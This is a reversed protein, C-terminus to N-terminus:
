WTIFGDPDQTEARLHEYDYQPCMTDSPPLMEYFVYGDPVTLKAADVHVCRDECTQDRFTVYVGELITFDPDVAQVRRFNDLCRNITSQIPVGPQLYRDNMYLNVGNICDRLEAPDVGDNGARTMYDYFGRDLTGSAPDYWSMNHYLRQDYGDEVADPVGVNCYITAYVPLDPAHEKLARCVNVAIQRDLFSGDPDANSYHDSFFDDISWGTLRDPYKSALVGIVCGWVAEHTPKALCNATTGDPLTPENPVITIWMPTRDVMVKTRAGAADLQQLFTELSEFDACGAPNTCFSNRRIIFSYVDPDLAVVREVLKPVDVRGDPLLVEPNALSGIGATYQMSPTQPKSWAYHAQLDAESMYARAVMIEDIKGRFLFDPSDTSHAVCGIRVSAGGKFLSTSAVLGQSDLTGNVWWQYEGAATIRIVVHMWRNLDSATLQRNSYVATTSASTGAASQWFALRSVGAGDTRVGLIWERQNGRASYKSLMAMAAGATPLQRPLMWVSMSLPLSMEHAPNDAITLCDDVGDFDLALKANNHKPTGRLGIEGAKPCASGGCSAARNAASLDNFVLAGASEDFHFKM